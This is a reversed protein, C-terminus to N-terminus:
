DKRGPPSPVLSVKIAGTTDKSLILNTSQNGVEVLAVAAETVLRSKAADFYSKFELPIFKRDVVYTPILILRSARMRVGSHTSFIPPNDEVFTLTNEGNPINDKDVYTNFCYLAWNNAVQGELPAGDEMMIVSGESPQSPFEIHLRVSRLDHSLVTVAPTQCWDFREVEELNLCGINYSNAKVIATKTFGKSSVIIGLNIGTRECKSHFAEVDPVGVLRSRDRCELALLLEHHAQAFTLVVDHERLKGTDKDVLRKPCEVKINPGTKLAIEIAHVVRQLDRGDKAPTSQNSRNSRKAM